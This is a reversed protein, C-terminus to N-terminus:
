FFHYVISIWEYNKSGKQYVFYQVSENSPALKSLDLCVKSCYCNLSSSFMEKQHPSPRVSAPFSPSCICIPRHTSRTMQSSTWSTGLSNMSLPISNRDEKSCEEEVRRAVTAKHQQFLAALNWTDSTTETSVSNCSDVWHISPLRKFLRM